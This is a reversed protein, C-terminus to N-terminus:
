LSQINKMADIIVRKSNVDLTCRYRKNKTQYAKIFGHEIAIKGWIKYEKESISFRDGLVLSFHRNTFLCRRSVNLLAFTYPFRKIFNKQEFSRKKQKPIKEKM